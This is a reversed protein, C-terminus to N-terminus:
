NSNNLMKEILFIYQMAIIRSSFRAECDKRVKSRDILHIKHVADIMEDLDNVLYGNVGDIVVEPVSGRNFGIVPTGCAMAETMVIGFPEEWQVPFLLAMAKQLYYRKQEDNVPGVYEILPHSLYPKVHEEFYSEHGPQINGAIVLKQNAALAAKIAEKTGKIEEIRGLFMLHELQPEELPKFYNIDTFNHVTSCISSLPHSTIMHQGCSTYRLKKGALISALRTSRKSIVRQYTQLVPLGSLLFLPYLYLLRSFSHLADPRVKRSVAFLFFSNRLVNFFGRSQQAPWSFREEASPCTSAKNAVLFVQHGMETYSAILANVIREIGGYQKPPVPLEPDVTVLIRM